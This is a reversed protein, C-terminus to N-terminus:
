KSKETNVQKYLLKSFKKILITNIDSGRGARGDL